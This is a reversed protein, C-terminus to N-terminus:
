LRQQLLSFFPCLHFAQRFVSGLAVLLCPLYVCYKYDKSPLAPIIVHISLFRLPCLSSSTTSLSTFKCGKSLAGLPDLLEPIRRHDSRALLQLAYRSHVYNSKIRILTVGWDTHAHGVKKQSSDKSSESTELETSM